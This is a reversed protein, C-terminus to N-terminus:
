WIRCSSQGSNVTSIMSILLCGPRGDPHLLRALIAYGGAGAVRFNMKCILGPHEGQGPSNLARWSPIDWKLCTEERCIGPLNRVNRRWGSGLVTNLEEDDYAAIPCIGGGIQEAGLALNQCVHGADLHLYRYGREVYRWFMREVVAVWFFTAAGTEVMVQDEAPM